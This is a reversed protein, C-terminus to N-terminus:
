VITKRGKEWVDHMGGKKGLSTFPESNGVSEANVWVRPPKSSLKGKLLVIDLIKKCGVYTALRRETKERLLELYNNNAM